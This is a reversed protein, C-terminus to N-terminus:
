SATASRRLTSALLEGRGSRPEGARLSRSAASAFLGAVLALLLRRAPGNRSGPMHTPAALGRHAIQRALPGAPLQEGFSSPDNVFLRPKRAATSKSCRPALAFM